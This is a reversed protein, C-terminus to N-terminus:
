PEFRDQPRPPLPYNREIYSWPNGRVLEVKAVQGDEIFVRQRHVTSASYYLPGVFGEADMEDRTYYSAPARPNYHAEKRGRPLQEIPTGVKVMYPEMSFLGICCGGGGLTCFTVLLVYALTRMM